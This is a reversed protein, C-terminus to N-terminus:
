RSQSCGVVPSLDVCLVLRSRRRCDERGRSCFYTEDDNLIERLISHCSMWFGFYDFNLQPEDSIFSKKFTSLLEVPTTEIVGNKGPAKSSEKQAMTTLVVEYLKQREFRAEDYRKDMNQVFQSHEQLRRCSSGVVNVPPPRPVQGNAFATLPTGLAVLYHKVIAFADTSLRPFLPQVSKQQALVLDMDHWNAELIGYRRMATYLHAMIVVQQLDGTIKLGAKHIKVKSNFIQNGISCPLQLLSRAGAEPNSEDVFHRGNQDRKHFSWNKYFHLTKDLESSWEGLRPRIPYQAQGLFGRYKEISDNLPGMEDLWTLTAIDPCSGIMQFISCYIEYGVVMWTPMAEAPGACYEVLGVIFESRENKSKRNKSLYVLEGISGAVYEAFSYHEDELVALVIGAKAGLAPEVNKVSDHLVRVSNAAGPCLLDVVKDSSPQQVDTSEASTPLPYAYATGRGLSRMNTSLANAITYWSNCEPHEQTFETDTSHLLILGVELVLAAAMLSVDGKAFSQWTQNVLDRVDRMDELHCWVAFSRDERDDSELEVSAQEQPLKSSKQPAQGLPSASPEDVELQLFLNRVTKELLPTDITSSPAAGKGKKAGSKTSAPAESSALLEHVKECVGIFFQHGDNSGAETDSGKLEYWSAFERRSHVVQKLDKLIVTPVPIEKTKVTEALDILARTKIKLTKKSDPARRSQTAASLASSDCSGVNLLLWEIVEQTQQKYM